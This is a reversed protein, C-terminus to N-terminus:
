HMLVLRPVLFSIVSLIIRKAKSTPREKIDFKCAKIVSAGDKFPLKLGNKILTVAFDSDELSAWFGIKRRVQDVLSSGEQNAEVTEIDLSRMDLIDIEESITLKLKIVERNILSTPEETVETVIAEAM